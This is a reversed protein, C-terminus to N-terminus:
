GCLALLLVDNRAQRPIMWSLGKIKMLNRTLGAIVSLILSAKHLYATLFISPAVFRNQASRLIKM